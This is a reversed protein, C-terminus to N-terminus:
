LMEKYVINQTWYKGDIVGQNAHNGIQVKIDAFRRVRSFAVYVQGHGFAPSPLDLGIKDFTQGQAKTITIAFAARVPFQRRRLRFPMTVDGESPVCNIRPIFVTRRDGTLLVAEIVHDHLRTVIMRTGNCLGQASNLNRLLMVPTGVKLFLEHPPMGSPTQNNIFEMPYNRAEEVTDCDVSDISNYCKGDGDLKEIIRRNLEFSPENCPTLIATNEYAAANSACLTDGFIVDEIALDCICEDPIQFSDEGFADSSPLRGEGLKLLWSAFEIESPDARMNRLLSVRQFLPWLHSRQFSAGTIAARAGKPVVPLCQRFDGGTLFVKGGFPDGTRPSSIDRLLRDVVNLAMGPAMPAEDWIFLDCNRLQHAAIDGPKISSTSTENLPVPLKFRSHVTRGGDLLTAAIGTLAVPFVTKGKGRMIHMITNYVFTKGTGAPGDMFFLRHGSNSFPREHDWDVKCAHLILNVIARQEGNLLAYMDMGQDLESQLDFTEEVFRRASPSPLGFDAMSKGHLRLHNQIDLLCMDKGIDSGHLFAFDEMLNEVHRRFLEAPDPNQPHCFSLIVAFLQRLCSPMKYVSAETLCRSWEEDDALLGRAKAADFFSSYLVGTVTRLCEFSTPSPVNLLLMRLFYRERDLPSVGYMRSIVNAENRLRPQWKKSVFRFMEGVQSYFLGDAEADSACLKFFATLATECSNDMAGQINDLTFVVNNDLPLHVPLRIITHSQEHMLFGFIRWAAEPPTVARGDVYQKIEDHDLAANSSNGKGCATRLEMNACDHGKYVYKYLYKVSRISSCIEVNIHADFKRLLYKNYPVIWRNDLVSGGKMFTAGNRRRYLPYGDVNEQTESVFGKPYDKKCKNQDMCPSKKNLHGCPGHVMHSIVQQYLNPEVEPDPLEASVIEDIMERGRIKHDKGLIILLHAHPLGRKQFEIVHILACVTGFVAGRKIDSLLEKLKLQFVRAVLDPRGEARQHGSLNDSIEMWKPNCTFTVFLDPKGFKNVMAMADQYNQQMNRPSNIFTSPLICIRGPLRNHDDADKALFDMLGKYREVRLKSQNQTLFFLNNAEMKVYSMVIFQQFLKGGNHILSFDSRIALRSKIFQRLTLRNRVPTRHDLHHKLREHWGSEGNPFLLPFAMPDSNPSTHSIERISGDRMHVVFDIQEPPMGDQGIFVVSVENSHPENYRRQDKAADKKFVLQLDESPGLVAEVERLNNYAAAYPSVRRIMGDLVGMVDARCKDNEKRGMRENLATQSDVVFLQSFVPHGSSKLNSTLTYVNGHIRYTYPGGARSSVDVNAKLSAFAMASNYNLIHDRFNKADTGNGTFLELLEEPIPKLLSEHPLSVKGNECCISFHGDVREGRFNFAMCHDHSCNQDMAGVGFPEMSDNFNSDFARGVHRLRQRTRRIDDQIREHRDAVTESDRSTQQLDQKTVKERRGTLSATLKRKPPRGAM